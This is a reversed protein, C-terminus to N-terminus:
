AARGYFLIERAAYKYFLYWACNDFGKVGNGMWSVRGVSVIKVCREAVQSFYVNHAFDSSLLLWTPAIDSLHKLISLTPEGRGSPQPWPPNTIFVDGQCSFLDLVDKREVGTGQPAIDSARKCAIAREIHGVLAGNGACPEDFTDGPTLHLFLPKVAEYPTSYFDRERREFNTRKGM